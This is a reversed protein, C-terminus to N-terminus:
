LAVGVIGQSQGSFRGNSHVTKEFSQRSTLGGRPVM